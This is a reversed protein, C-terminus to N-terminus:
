APHRRGHLALRQPQRTRGHDGHPGQADPWKNTWEDYTLISNLVVFHVGKYDFSYYQPGLRSEWYEGLDLYYDHEGMAYLVQYNLPALLELGHDIEEKTGLQAIDGGYLVFDPKPNLLNAEAVARKLGQDWNRVFERGKIHQIHSDSIYAFSFNQDADAFALEVVSLPLLSGLGALGAGKLFGRRTLGPRAITDNM